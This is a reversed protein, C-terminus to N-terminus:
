LTEGRHSWGEQRGEEGRRGVQRADAGLGAAQEIAQEPRRATGRARDVQQEVQRVRDDVPALLRGDRLRRDVDHHRQAGADGVVAGRRRARARGVLHQQLVVGAVHQEDKEEGVVGPDLLGQRQAGLAPHGALEFEVVAVPLHHMGVAHDVRLPEGGHRQGIRDVPQGVPEGGLHQGLRHPGREGAHGGQGVPEGPQADGEGMKGAEGGREGGRVPGFVGPADVRLGGGAQAEGEVLQQRVLDREGQHALAHAHPLAAGRGGAVVDGLADLGGQGEGERRRLPRRQGLDAGVEGGGVAHQPQQLAVDARALRHHREEGHGVRHFAPALGRQHRGRLDERALMEGAKQRARLRRAEGHREDGPAVPRGLAGARQGAQAVARDVDRHAGVREDLVGDGEVVEAEGDDVLLVAEADM